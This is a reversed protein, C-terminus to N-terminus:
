KSVGAGTLFADVFEQNSAGDMNKQAVKSAALLVIDAISGRVERMAQEREAEIMRNADSLVKAADERAQQLIRSYEADARARAAQIIQTAETQADALQAALQEQLTEAQAKKAEAEQISDEILKRRKEMIAGVPKFLFKKLLLYFVLLNIITYIINWDLNLM